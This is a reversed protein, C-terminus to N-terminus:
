PTSRPTPAAASYRATSGLISQSRQRRRVAEEYRARGPAKPIPRLASGLPELAPARWRLARHLWAARGRAQVIRSLQWVFPLRSDYQAYIAQAESLPKGIMEAFKKLAPATSRPSTSPRRGHRSRPRDDRAVIAHFDADPDNRYREAAEKAGPLNRMCPTICSSASNRSAVTPRAGSRARKRCSCAAFSRGWSRTARRCRSCRRIPIRSGSRSQAARRPAIRTSKM